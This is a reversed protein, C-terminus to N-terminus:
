RYDGQCVDLLFERHGLTGMLLLPNKIFENIKKM